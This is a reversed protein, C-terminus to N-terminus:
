ENYYEIYFSDFNLNNNNILKNFLKFKSKFLEPIIFESNDKINSLFNNYLVLDLEYINKKEKIKEFKDKILKCKYILELRKNIIDNIDNSDNINKINDKVIIKIDNNEVDCKINNDEIIYKINDESDCKINNDEIIHKITNKKINDKEIFLYICNCYCSDIKFELIKISDLTILEHQFCSNIYSFPFSIM